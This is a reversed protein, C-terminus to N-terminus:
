GPIHGPEPNRDAAHAHLGRRRLDYIPWIQTRQAGNLRMPERRLGRLAAMSSARQRRPRGVASAANAAYSHNRRGRASIILPAAALVLWALAPLAAGPLPMDDGSCINAGTCL